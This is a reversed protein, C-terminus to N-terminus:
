FSGIASNNITISDFYMKYGGATGPNGLYLNDADDTISGSSYSAYNDGSTPETDGTSFGVSAFANAGTGKVYHLWINTSESDVLKTAAASYNAGCYIRVTGDSLIRLKALDTTSSRISIVTVWSALPCRYKLRVWVEGLASFAYVTSGIPNQGDISLSQSGALVVGTEDWNVTNSDSWGTPTGTGECDENTIYSPGATKKRLATIVQGPLLSWSLAAIAIISILPRLM